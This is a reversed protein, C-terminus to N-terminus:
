KLIQISNQLTIKPCHNHFTSKVLHRVVDINLGAIVKIGGCDFVKKSQKNVNFSTLYIIGKGAYKILQGIRDCARYKLRQGSENLIEKELADMYHIAEIETEFFYREYRRAVMSGTRGTERNFWKVYQSIIHRFQESIIKWPEQFDLRRNAKKSLERQILYQSIIQTRNSLRLVLVVCGRQIVYRHVTAYGYLKKDIIELFQKAHKIKEAFASNASAHIKIVYFGNAYLKKTKRM